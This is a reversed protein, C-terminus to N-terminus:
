IDQIRPTAADRYTHNSLNMNSTYLHCTPIQTHGLSGSGAKDCVRKALPRVLSHELRSVPTVPSFSTLNHTETSIIPLNLKSPISEIEVVELDARTSCDFTDLRDCYYHAPIM